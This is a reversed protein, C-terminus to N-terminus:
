RATSKVLKKREEPSIDSYRSRGISTCKLCRYSKYRGMPTYYKGCWDLHEEDAGCTSCASGDSDVYLGMPPHSKIWPRLILYLEELARIDSINYEEMYALAKRNDSIDYQVSVINNDVSSSIENRAVCRKWLEYDTKKKQSIQFMKNLFDLKNSSFAFERQSVKLTDIIRYPMTPGLGNAMFRAKIKRDDFKINNHAITIDAEEMLKWLKNIISSDKRYIAEQPSVVQSMIDAEFLWKASWSLMAWEKIINHTDVYPKWITWAGIELFSSEIDLLLIRPKRVYGFVGANKRGRRATRRSCGVAEQVESLSCGPHKIVHARAKEQKNM